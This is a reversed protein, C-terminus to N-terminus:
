KALETWSPPKLTLPVPEWEAELEDWHNGWVKGSTYCTPKGLSGRKRLFVYRCAKEPNAQFHAIQAETLAQIVCIETM